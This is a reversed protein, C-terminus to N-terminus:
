RSSMMEINRKGGQSKAERLWEILKDMPLPRSYFYGQVEDCGLDRLHDEQNKTEVGEAVVTLRLKHALTIAADVIAADDADQEIDRIFSQDIKLTDIPFRKLYSLSSYGTGFDDISLKIGLAKLQDLLEVPAKVDQMLISETLELELSEAALGTNLLTQRVIGVLDPQRLQLASLNVSIGIESGIAKQIKLIDACATELVWQGLPVILGSDEAVPIFDGPSILGLKPDAWRVLAEVSRVRGNSLTIKPQFHLIFEENDLAERIRNEMTLRSYARAQIEPTFFRYCDRGHQKADYMAGDAQRLLTQTDTANDPCVSIGISSGIVVSTEHLPLPESLHRNIREAVLGADEPKSLGPLLVVFEDGGMRGVIPENSPRAILDAERLCDTLREAILTLAHDGTQHGWTDNIRKFHDLDILMVALLQNERQASAIMRPLHEQLLTRNALKTTSDYFALTRIQSEARRRESIDQILGSRNHHGQANSPQEYAEMNLFLEAGLSTLWRFEIAESSSLSDLHKMDADVRTRDEPHIHRIFERRELSASQLGLRDVLVDSLTFRANIGSFTWSGLGAIRQTDLLIKERERLQGATRSTRLMYMLRHVLLGLNLPKTVFDTAGAEFAQEVSELSETGTMILIPVHQGAATARLRGCVEYGNMQPMRVDVLVVGAPSEAFSQLGSSGCQATRVAFGAKTLYAEVLTRIVADDDIVLVDTQGSAAAHATM